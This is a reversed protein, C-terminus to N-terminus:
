VQEFRGELTDGGDPATIAMNPGTAVARIQPLLNVENCIVQAVTAAPWGGPPAGEPLVIIAEQTLQNGDRDTVVGIYKISAGSEAPDAVTFDTGESNNQVIVIGGFPAGQLQWGAALDTLVANPAPFSLAGSGDMTENDQGRITSAPLTGEEGGSSPYDAPDTYGSGGVNQGRQGDRANGFQDLLTWNPLSEELGPQPGIGIGPGASGGGLMGSNWEADPVEATRATVAADDVFVPVVPM